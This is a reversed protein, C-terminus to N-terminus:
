EASLTARTFLFAIDRPNFFLDDPRTPGPDSFRMSIRNLDGPRLLDPDVELAIMKLATLDDAVLEVVDLTSGNLVLEIQQPEFVTGELSLVLPRELDKQSLFDPTLYFYIAAEPCVSWRGLDRWNRQEFGVLLADNRVTSPDSEGSRSVADLPDIHQDARFDLPVDIEWASLFSDPRSLVLPLVVDEFATQEIECLMRNDARWQAYGWEFFYGREARYAPVPEVTENWPGVTLPNFLGQYLHIYIGFLGLLGYVVVFPYLTSSFPYFLNARPTGKEGIARREERKDKVHRWVLITLLTWGPMTEALLRPGFSNGGWWIVAQSVLILHLLFWVLLMLILPRRRLDPLAFLAATPLLLFPMFVFLGRSPSILNGLVGVWLPVGAQAGQTGSYYPPIFRGYQTQSWVAFLCLSFFAVLATILFNRWRNSEAGGWRLLPGLGLFTLVALIFSAASARCIFTIFLLLGLVLHGSWSMGFRQLAAVWGTELLVTRRSDYGAALIILVITIAIVTYNISFLAAGTSSLLVSGLVSVIAILAADLPSLFLRGMGFFLLLTVTTTAFVLRNQVAFNQDMAALDFGLLDFLATVPLTLIATGPPFFDVWHGNVFASHTGEIDALTQGGRVPVQELPDLWVKGTRWLAQSTPLTLLPDSGGSQNLKNGTM